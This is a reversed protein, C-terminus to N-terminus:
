DKLELVIEANNGDENVVAFLDTTKESAYKQPIQNKPKPVMLEAGPRPPEYDPSTIDAAPKTPPANEIKAVTVSHKGGVVGDNSAFTTLQFAGKEDTRGFAARDKEKCHFTVDAGVVPRGKYTIKGTIPFVPERGTPQSAGCGCLGASVLITLAFRRMILTKWSFDLQKLGHRYRAAAWSCYLPASGFVASCHRDDRRRSEDLVCSTKGFVFLALIGTLVLM